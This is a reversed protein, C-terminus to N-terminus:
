SMQKALGYTKMMEGVVVGMGMEDSRMDDWRMVLDRVVRAEYFM